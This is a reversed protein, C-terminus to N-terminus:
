NMTSRDPTTAAAEAEAQRAAEAQAKALVREVEAGMKGRLTLGFMKFDGLLSWVPHKFTAPRNGEIVFHSFWAPGYGAAAAAPLWWLKRTKAFAALCALFGVTGVFHFARTLPKSHERVYFDWFEDFSGFSQSM